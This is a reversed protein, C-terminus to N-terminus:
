NDFALNSLLVGCTNGAALRIYGNEGWKTAWSNRIIWNGDADYGVAVIAHNLDDETTPGCGSFIGSKYFKWTSADVCVSVPAKAIAAKLAESTQDLNVYWGEPYYKPVDYPIDRCKGQVAVYPYVESKVIGYEIVYQLAEEPWGGNCGDSQYGASVSVCDLIEQEAYSVYSGHKLVYHSEVIGAISFTWCSGCHGQNKIPGVVNTVNRWDVSEPIQQDLVRSELRRGKKPRTQSVKTNLVRYKFEEDTFDAFQNLSQTFTPNQSNHSDVQRKNEVFILQRFFQEEESNYVRGNNQRWLNYAILEEVTLAQQFVNQCYVLSTLVALSLAVLVIKRM